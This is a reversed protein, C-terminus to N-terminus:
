IEVLLYFHFYSWHCFEDVERCDGEWGVFSCNSKLSTENRCVATQARRSKSVAGSISITSSRKPQGSHPRISWSIKRKSIDFPNIQCSKSRLAQGIGLADFSIQGGEGDKIPPQLCGERNKCHLRRARGSDSFPPSEMIKHNFPWQKEQRYEGILRVVREKIFPHHSEVYKITLTQNQSEGLWECPKELACHQAKFSKKQRNRIAAYGNSAAHNSPTRPSETFM